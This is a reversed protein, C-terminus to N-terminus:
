RTYRVCCYLSNCMNNITEEAEAETLGRQDGLVSGNYSLRYIPFRTDRVANLIIVEKAEGMDYEPNYGKSPKM